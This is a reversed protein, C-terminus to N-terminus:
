LGCGVFMYGYLYICLEMSFTLIWVFIWLDMSMTMTGTGFIMSIWVLIWVIGYRKCVEGEGGKKAKM